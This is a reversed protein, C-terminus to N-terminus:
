TTVCTLPTAPRPPAPYSTNERGKARLSAWNHPYLPNHPHLKETAMQRETGGDRQRKRYIRGARLLNLQRRLRSDRLPLTDKFPRPRIVVREPDPQTGEQGVRGRSQRLRKIRVDKRRGVIGPVIEIRREIGADRDARVPVNM